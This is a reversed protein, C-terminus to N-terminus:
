RLELERLTIQFEELLCKRVEHDGLQALSLKIIISKAKGTLHSLLLHSKLNNSVEYLAFLNDVNDLNSPLEASDTPMSPFINEIAMGYKNTQGLLSNEEERNKKQYELETLRFGKERRAKADRFQM